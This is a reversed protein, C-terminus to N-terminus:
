QNEDLYLQVRNDITQATDTAARDGEFYADLEEWIIDELTEPIIPTPSCKELFANFDRVYAKVDSKSVIETTGEGGGLDFDWRDKGSDSKEVRDEELSNKRVSYYVCAEQGEESLLYELFDSIAQKNKTNRNVVIIKHEELYNTSGAESPFGIPYYDEGAMDAMTVFEKFSAMYPTHIAICEGEQLLRSKEDASLATENSAKALELLTIFEERDFNSERKEWDIFLSNELDWLAFTRLILGGSAEEDIYDVLLQKQNKNEELLKIVESVTWSDKNWISRKTFVARVSVEPALGAFTGEVTGLQIVGPLLVEMTQPSIYEELDAAWGKECLLKMDERTALLIDPGKGATVDALVRTRYAEDETENAQLELSCQPNKRSFIAAAEGVINRYTADGSIDAISVAEGKVVEESTLEAMWDQEDGTICRIYLTGDKGFALQKKDAREIGNDELPFISSREGTLVNWRVLDSASAYYLDAGRMGLLYGFEEKPMEGLVREKGAEEDYWKIQLLKEEPNSVAYLFRGDDSYVGGLVSAQFGESTYMELPPLLGAEKPEYFLAHFEEETMSSASTVGGMEPTMVEKYYEVSLIESLDEAYVCKQIGTFFSEGDTAYYRFFYTSGEQKEEHEWEQYNKMHLQQGEAVKDDMQFTQSKWDFSFVEQQQQQQQTDTTQVPTSCGALMLSLAGIVFSKKM